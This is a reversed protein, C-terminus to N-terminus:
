LSMSVVDRLIENANGVKKRRRAMGVLADDV